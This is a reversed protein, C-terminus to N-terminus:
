ANHYNIRMVIGQDYDGFKEGFLNIGGANKAKEKVGIKFSIFNNNALKLSEITDTSVQRGDMACGNPTISLTHLMGFQTFDDPWWDPNVRGRRGGYDGLSTFTCLEKNNIWLTIDSPWDNNYGLAESCCEFSFDVSLITGETRLQHNSFRYELNGKYFWLIQATTREASYFGTLEDDPSLSYRENAIGCPPIINIDSYNGIPMSTIYSKIQNAADELHKIDITVRDVKIGSVKQSGRIGPQPQTTVLGAEELVKIQLAATSVPIQLAQAIESINMAESDLLKLIKIRVESSLAKSVSAVQEVDSLSLYLSKKM